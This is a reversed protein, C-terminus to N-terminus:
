SPKDGEHRRSLTNKICGGIEHMQQIVDLPNIQEIQGDSHEYFLDGDIIAPMAEVLAHALTQADEITEAMASIRAVVEKAKAVVDGYGHKECRSNDGWLVDVVDALIGITQTDAEHQYELEAIEEKLAANESEAVSHYELARDRIEAAIDSDAAIQMLYDYIESM